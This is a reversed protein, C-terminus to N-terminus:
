RQEYLGVKSEMEQRVQDHLDQDDIMEIVPLFYGVSLLGIAQQTTLGRSQLYYLQDEDPKGITLAHSAQVQNEDILLLPICKATHGKGLTLVRTAQHSSADPCAKKINGNAVMEYHGKDLLVAFNRMQGQTHGANHLVEMDGMKKVGETCLQASQISFQAGEQDLSVHQKWDFNTQQMDLLGMQCHADKECHIAIHCDVDKESRNFVFLKVQAGEKIELDINILTAEKELQVFFTGQSMPEIKWSQQYNSDITMTQNFMNAFVEAMKSDGIHQGM